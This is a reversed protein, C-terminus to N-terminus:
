QSKRTADTSERGDGEQDEQQEVPDEEGRIIITRPRGDWADIELPRKKKTIKLSGGDSGIDWNEISFRIRPGRPMTTLEKVLAELSQMTFDEEPEKKLVGYFYTTTKSSSWRLLTLNVAHRVLVAKVRQNMEYRSVKKDVQKMQNGDGWGSVTRGTMM